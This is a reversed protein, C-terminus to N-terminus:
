LSIGKSLIYDIEILIAMGMQLVLKRPSSRFFGVVYSRIIRAIFTLFYM